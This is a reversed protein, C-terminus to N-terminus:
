ALNYFKKADEICGAPDNRVIAMATVITTIIGAVFGLTIKFM